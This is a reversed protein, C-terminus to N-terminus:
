PLYGGLVNVIRTAAHGDWLAPKRGRKGGHQLAHLALSEIRAPDTGALTNSGETVTIPRETNERLTLCPVGLATTEEQLGGSDTFVLTAESWLNLFSMYPQPPMLHIRKSLTLGGMRARTRPHVPFVLPLAESVRNLVGVLRALTVPDDVNSPRHLTVVGFRGGLERKISETAYSERPALALQQAQYIVNDAMVHGVEFIAEEAHGERRLNDVGVPETVFFLDSISDTVIRNIEEPMARDGSRLGAEIHAVPICAKKAVISCALTSNVDGVVLVADPRDQGCHTEFAEMIRATQQAHSGGGCNFHVDPAPIGLEEFFVDSMERDYHQGTHVLKWRLRSQQRLARVLPAIKMFNPRAGAVIHVTPGQPSTSM